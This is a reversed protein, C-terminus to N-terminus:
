GLQVSKEDLVRCTKTRAELVQELDAKQQELQSNKTKLQSSKGKAVSIRGAFHLLSCYSNSVVINLGFVSIQHNTLLPPCTFNNITTDKRKFEECRKAKEKNDDILMQLRETMEERQLRLRQLKDASSMFLQEMQDKVENVNKEDEM